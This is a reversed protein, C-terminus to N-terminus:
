GLFCLRALVGLRSIFDRNDFLTLRLQIGLRETNRVGGIGLRVDIANGPDGSQTRNNRGSVVARLLRLGARIRININVAEEVIAQVQRADPSYPDIQEVEVVKSAPEREVVCAAAGARVVRM